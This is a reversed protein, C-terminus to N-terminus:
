VQRLSTHIGMVDVWWAAVWPGLTCNDHLTPYKNQSILTFTVVGIRKMTNDSSTDLKMAHGLQM